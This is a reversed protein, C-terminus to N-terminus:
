PTAPPFCALTMIEVTLRRIDGGSAAFSQTLRPLAHPGWARVPQRVLAHFMGQVFAEQADTSDIGYTIRVRTKGGRLNPM